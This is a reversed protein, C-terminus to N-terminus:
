GADMSAVIDEAAKVPDTAKTIPRGVVIYDAGAEVAERPTMTRRQDDEVTQPRIGPVVTLFDAGCAEKIARVEAPSAVVGDLGAKESLRALRVVQELVTSSIGQQALSDQDLSTLVTVGLVLPRWKGAEVAAKDSAERAARMAEVGATAHVNFMAVGLRAIAAAAGAVTNPIDSLKTDAFVSVGMGVLRSAARPGEAMLLELGIKLMGVRGMLREAMELAQALSPFDLAVILRQRANVGGRIIACAM